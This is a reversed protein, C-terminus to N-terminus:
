IPLNYLCKTTYIESRKPVELFIWIYVDRWDDKITSVLDYEEDDDGKIKEIKEEGLNNREKKPDLNDGGDYYTTADGFMASEPPIFFRYWSM